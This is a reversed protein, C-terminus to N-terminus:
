ITFIRACNSCAHRSGLGCAQCLLSPLAIAADRAAIMEPGLEGFIQASLSDSVRCICTQGPRPFGRREARHALVRGTGECYFCDQDAPRLAQGM